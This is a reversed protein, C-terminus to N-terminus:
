LRMIKKYFAGNETKFQVWYMGAPHNSLDVELKERFFNRQNQHWISKGLGDLINIELPTTQELDFQIHILAISPNPFIQINRNLTPDITSTTVIAQPGFTATCGIADTVMLKYIGTRLGFLDKQTSILTDNRFWQYRYGPTGSSVNMKLFGTPGFILRSEALTVVPKPRIFVTISDTDTCGNTTVTLGYTQTSSPRVNVVAATAGTSWIYTGDGTASLTTFEGQCINKDLGANAIPKPNVRVLVTATSTCGGQTVSVEYITNTPPAVRIQASTANIGSWRYTGVGNATLLVSQGECIPQVPNISAAPPPLVTVAVSAEASCGNNSVTVQYTQSFTPKVRISSTIENTSWRYTGGGTANLDLSSGACITKDPGASATPKSNVRVLVTATSTCGGQTVSM